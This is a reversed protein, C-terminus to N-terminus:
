RWLDPGCFLVSIEVRVFHNASEMPYFAVPAKGKAQEVRDAINWVDFPVNLVNSEGHMYAVTTGKWAARVDPDFV